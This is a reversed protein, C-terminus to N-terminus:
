AVDSYNSRDKMLTRLKWEVNNQWGTDGRHPLGKLQDALDPRLGNSRLTQVRCKDCLEPKSCCLGCSAITTGISEIFDM